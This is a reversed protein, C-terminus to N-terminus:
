PVNVTVQAPATVQIIGAWLCALTCSNDLCPMKGILVTPGGPVWPTVTAPICPMPTLVGM